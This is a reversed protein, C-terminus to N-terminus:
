TSRNIRFINIYRMAYGRDGSGNTGFGRLYGRLTFRYDYGTSLQIAYQARRSVLPISGFQAISSTVDWISTASGYHTWTSNGSLRDEIGLTVFSGSTSSNNPVSGVPDAGFQIIYDGTEKIRSGSVTGQLITPLTATGTTIYTGLEPEYITIPAQSYPSNALFDDVSMTQESINTVGTTQFFAVTGVADDSLNEVKIGNNGNSTVLILEGQANQSLFNTDISLRNTNITGATIKSANLNAIKADDITADAIKASVISGNKIFADAIYVGAPVTEGNLTTATTQVAFPVSPTGTDNADKLIAFRDANVIFESTINGSANTTSALGFGAVAGNNDIKITYQGNLGNISTANTQISTTNGNVSTSLTTIDSAQSTINGEATTVRTTLNTIATANGSVNGNTTSLASNLSTIDSANTSISGEAATVRTDLGSIATANTSVNSDTTSLSSQLATIDSSNATINGEAATVRTGLGSIATANASVNADTNTLNQNTTTLSTNLSTIDTANATINGEATTIRTDLGSIASTNANVGTSPDDVTAELAAVAQAIASTSTADVYNIENIASSNGAVASSLSSYAGVFAWYTTDATTGSPQNGTNGNSKSRYLNGNYTVLDDLAYTDTSVWAAVTNLTNIQSQLSSIESTTDAPLNGIPTALSTALQSSTIAGTLESLLNDVNALTQVRTGATNNFPGPVAASNVHRIWYYYDASEGVPDIFSTGASVGILIASTITDATFRWVETLSHGRYLPFDWYLQATAYGASAVFSTPVTPVEPISAIGGPTTFGSNGTGSGDTNFPRTKLEEALGSDILERLTIARDRQDGRRGLRIEVAETLSQLYRKLDPQVSTPVAPIGPVKTPSVTRKVVTM